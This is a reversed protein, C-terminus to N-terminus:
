VEGALIRRPDPRREIGLRGAAEDIVACLAAGVDAPLGLPDEGALLAAREAAADLVGTREAALWDSLSGRYGVAPVPFESRVYRRTHKTSLFGGSSLVGEVMADVNLADGDWPRPSVAHRVNTLIDDDLVLAEDCTAAGAQVEGIGSLFRPRALLGILANVSREYGFQADLVKSDSTLGYCDCALGCRRALLVAAIVSVEPTGSAVGGTRPDVASLRPGYYVPTGPAVTQLLVVGALVEAHQQAAAAAVAAPATTAATPCPLIECVVGGRRATAIMAESVEAGLILPSVPSFALDVPYLGGSGDAGTVLGAMDVVAAAQSVTSIGPGGLYKDSENALVLYTYLPELEPPVDDPQVLTTLIDQNRLRHMIRALRVSDALTARRHAGTRPDAIDAVYGMNHVYTSGPEPDVTISRGNDRAALRYSRPCAALADTVLEEPVGLRAHGLERCGAALLAERAAAADVRVGARLLVALAAEHIATLAEDPWLDLAAALVAAAGEGAQTRSM